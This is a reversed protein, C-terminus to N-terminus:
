LIGKTTPLINQAREDTDCAQRLSKAFGKFIAEIKHHENRGYRLNIHITAKLTDSLSKFFQEILETPLDGVKERNFDVNFILNSRGGLDLAVEALTEDMPLLFGYRNIGKRSGLAKLLVEGLAIGVDEVTHHEDVNLDGDARVILDILSHRSLQQLMHDFFNLGTKIQNEGKGDLNCQIFINTENTIRELSAIRPFSSNTKVLYARIGINKAFEMDTNRDGVMFSKNFDIENNKLFDNVLGTKPKRCNCNDESFHPCIFIGEFEIGEKKLRNLLENQPADFNKQPFSPTGIGNQNSVMVLKYGELIFSKLQSVAGPLIQLKDVSDIQKTDPPEYILVGDRDLFAIKEM